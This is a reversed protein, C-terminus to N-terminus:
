LFNLSTNIAGVISSKVSLFMRALNKYLGHLITLHSVNKLEYLFSLNM